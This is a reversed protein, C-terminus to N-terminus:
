LISCFVYFSFNVCFCVFDYIIALPYQFAARCYIGVSSEASSQGSNATTSRLATWLFSRVSLCTIVLLVRHSTRGWDHSGKARYPLRYCRFWAQVKGLSNFITSCPYLAFFSLSPSLFTHTPHLFASFILALSCAWHRDLLSSQQCFYFFVMLVPPPPPPLLLISLLQCQDLSPLSVSKASGRSSWAFLWNFLTTSTAMILSFRPWM